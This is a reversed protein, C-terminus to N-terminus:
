LAEEIKLRGSEVILNYGSGTERDILLMDTAELEDSVGLILLRGNEVLLAYREGTERDSLIVNYVSEVPVTGAQEAYGQSVHAWYKSNNEDEDLRMGTGGAAWSQSLKASAVSRDSEDRARDAEGDARDASNSAHQVARELAEYDVDISSRIEAARDAEGKARDAEGAADSKSKEAADAANVARQVDAEVTERAFEAFQGGTMKSAIGQQEVPILSDNYLDAVGPLEGITKDAM